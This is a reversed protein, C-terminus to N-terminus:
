TLTLKREPVTKNALRTKERYGSCARSCGFNLSIISIAARAVFPTLIGPRFAVRASILRVNLSWRVLSFAFNFTLVYRSITTQYELKKGLTWRDSALDIQCAICPLGAVSVAVKRNSPMPDLLCRWCLPLGLSSKEAECTKVIGVITYTQTM